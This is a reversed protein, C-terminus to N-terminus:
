ILLEPTEFINGVVECFSDKDMDFGIFSAITDYRTIGNSIEKYCFAAACSEIVCLSASYEPPNDDDVKVIDGECIEKNNTDKLGIYQQITYEGTRSAVVEGMNTIMLFKEPNVFEKYIHDWIRFRRAICNVYIPSKTRM